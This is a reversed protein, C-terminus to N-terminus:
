PFSFVSLKLIQDEILDYLIGQNSNWRDQSICEQYVRIFPQYYAQFVRLLMVVESTVFKVVVM